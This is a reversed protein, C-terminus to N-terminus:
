QRWGKAELVNKLFCGSRAIGSDSIRSFHFHLDVFFVQTLINIAGKSM